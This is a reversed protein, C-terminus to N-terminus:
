RLFLIIVQQKIYSFYFNLVISVIFQITSFEVKISEVSEIL